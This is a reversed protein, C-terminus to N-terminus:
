QSLIIKPCKFVKRWYRIKGGDVHLCWAWLKNDNGDGAEGLHLEGGAVQRGERWM